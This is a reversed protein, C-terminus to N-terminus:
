TNDHKKVAANKWADKELKRLNPDALHNLCGRLDEAEVSPDKMMEIFEDANKARRILLPISQTAVAKKLFMNFAVSMNLGLDDFLEEAEKKLEANIRMSITTNKEPM